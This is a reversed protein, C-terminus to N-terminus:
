FTYQLDTTGLQCLVHLAPSACLLRPAQVIKVLRSARVEPRTHLASEPSMLGLVREMPRIDHRMCWCLLERMAREELRGMLEKVTEVESGESGELNVGFQEPEM